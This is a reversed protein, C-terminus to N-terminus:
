RVSFFVYVHIILKNDQARIPDGRFNDYYCIKYNLILPLSVNVTGLVFLGSPEM